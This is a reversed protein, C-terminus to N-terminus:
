NDDGCIESSLGVWGKYVVIPDNDLTDPAVEYVDSIKFIGGCCGCIIEDRYAIGGIYCGDWFKVQTPAEFYNYKKM